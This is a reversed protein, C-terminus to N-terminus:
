QFVSFFGENLFGFQNMAIAGCHHYHREIFGTLGIAKLAFDINTFATVIDEFANSEGNVIDNKVGIDKGYCRADVLVVIVCNVKYVGGTPDFLVKGSGFNRPTNGIDTEREAAVVSHSLGHVRGEQIVGDFGTEIHPDHIGSHNFNIILNWFFKEFVNLINQHIASVIGGFSQHCQGILEFAFFFLFHLFSLSPSQITNFLAQTMTQDFPNGFEDVFVGFFCELFVFLGQMYNFSRQHIAHVVHAIQEAGSFHEKGLNHLTCPNHFFGYGVQLGIQFGLFGEVGICFGLTFDQHGGYFPIYVIDTFVDYTDNQSTIIVFDFVDTHHNGGIFYQVFGLSPTSIDNSKRTQNRWTQIFHHM